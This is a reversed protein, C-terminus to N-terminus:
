AEGSAASIMFGDMDFRTLIRPFSQPEDSESNRTVHVHVCISFGSLRAARIGEIACNSPARGARLGVDRAAAAPLCRVTLFLRSSPSFNMFAGAFAASRRHELFVFHGSQAIARVLTRSGPHAASARGGGIWLVPSSQCTIERIKETHVPHSARFAPNGSRDVFIFRALLAGSPAFKWFLHAIKNKM